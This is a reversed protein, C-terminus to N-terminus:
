KTHGFNATKIRIQKARAELVYQDLYSTGDPLTAFQANLDIRDNPDNLYTTVEWTRIRNTAKDYALEVHDGPKAYDTFTLTGSESNVSAKGAALAAEMAQPEPPVYRRIVSGARDLYDRLDNDLKSGGTAAMPTEVLKGGAGYRCEKQQVNKVKGKVSVEVSETWSYRKLAAQSRRMSTKVAALRQQVEDPAGAPQQAGAAAAFVVTTFIKRAMHM